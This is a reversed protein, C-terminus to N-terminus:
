RSADGARVALLQRPGVALNLPYGVAYRPEAVDYEETVRENGSAAAHERDHV